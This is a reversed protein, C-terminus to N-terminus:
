VNGKFNPHCSRWLTTPSARKVSRGSGINIIFKAKAAARYIQGMARPDHPKILGNEFAWDTCNESVFEYHTEAYRRVYGLAATKWGTVNEEAHDAVTEIAVDRAATAQRADYEDFSLQQPSTLMM